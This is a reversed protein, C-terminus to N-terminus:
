DTAVNVPAPKKPVDSKTKYSTGNPKKKFADAMASMASNTIKMGKGEEAQPSTWVENFTSL